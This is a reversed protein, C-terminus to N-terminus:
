KNYKAIDEESLSSTQAAIKKYNELKIEDTTVDVQGEGEPKVKFSAPIDKYFEKIAEASSFSKLIRDSHSKYVIGTRILKNIEDKKESEIKESKLKAIEEDKNKLQEQLTVDEENEKAKKDAAEKDAKEKQLKAEEDKKAEEKKALELKEKETMDFEKNKNAEIKANEFAQFTVLSLEYIEAETIITETIEGDENYISEKKLIYAGISVGELAGMEILPIIKNIIDPDKLNLTMLFKLATDSDSFESIGVMSMVDWSDHNVYATVKKPNTFAGKAFSMKRYDQTQEGYPVAVGGIKGEKPKFEEMSSFEFLFRAKDKDQDKSKNSFLLLAM